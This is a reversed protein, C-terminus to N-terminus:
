DVVRSMAWYNDWTSLFYERWFGPDTIVIHPRTPAPSWPKPTYIEAKILAGPLEPDVIFLGASPAIPMYRFDFLSPNSDRLERLVIEVSRMSAIFKAATTFRPDIRTLTEVAAESDPDVCMIKVTVDRALARDMFASKSEVVAKCDNGSIRIEQKAEALRTELGGFRSSLEDRSM